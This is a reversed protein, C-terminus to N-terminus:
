DVQEALATEPYYTEVLASWASWSRGSWSREAIDWNGVLEVVAVVVWGVVSMDVVLM